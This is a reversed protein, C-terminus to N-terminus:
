KGLPLELKMGIAQTRPFIQHSSMSVGKNAFVIARALERKKHIKIFFPISALACAAGTIYLAAAADSMSPDTYLSNAMDSAWIIAGTGALVAGTISLVLATTKANKAQRLYGNVEEKQAPTLHAMSATDIRQPFAVCSSLLFFICALAKKM